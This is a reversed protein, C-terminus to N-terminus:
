PKQLVYVISRHTLPDDRRYIQAPAPRVFHTKGTVAQKRAIALGTTEALAEVYSPTHSWRGTFGLEFQSNPDTNAFEDLTISAVGGSRLISFILQMIESLDGFYPISDCAILLDMSEPLFSQLAVLLDGHKLEDYLGPQTAQEIALKSLDIGTLRNALGRFEHGAGGRGCGLDLVDLWCDGADGSVGMVDEVLSRMVKEVGTFILGHVEHFLNSESPPWSEGAWEYYASRRAELDFLFAIYSAPARAPAPHQGQLAAVVYKVDAATPTVALAKRYINLAQKYNGLEHHTFGMASLGNFDRPRYKIVKKYRAIAKEPQGMDRFSNALLLHAAALTPVIATATELHTVAEHYQQSDLLSIAVQMHADAIEPTEVGPQMDLVERYSLVALDLRGIDTQLKGISVLASMKEREDSYMDVARKYHKIADEARSVRVLTEALFVHGDATEEANVAREYLSAAKEFAGDSFLEEARTVYSERTQLLDNSHLNFPLAALLGVLVLSFFCECNLWGVLDAGDIDNSVVPAPDRAADLSSAAATSNAATAGKTAPRTRKLNKLTGRAM